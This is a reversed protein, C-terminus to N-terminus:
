HLSAVLAHHRGLVYNGTAYLVDHLHHLVLLVIMLDPLRLGLIDSKKIDINLFHREMNLFFIVKEVLPLFGFRDSKDNKVEFENNFKNHAFHHQFTLPGFTREWPVISIDFKM